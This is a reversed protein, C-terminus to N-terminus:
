RGVLFHCVDGEQLIYDKGETRMRGASKIAAESGHDALDDVSYIEARIFGKVFDSHIEGAALPATSGRAVTWARIEKEGATFFTQLKLLDYNSRILRDLGPEKLGFEEQFLAREDAEMSRLGHELEGCFVLYGMGRNKAALALAVAVEGKGELDDEVVNALVLVDKLTLLFLPRLFTREESTWSETRLGKGEELLAQAREFAALEAQLERDGLRAKKAVRDVNREVTDLDALALELEVTEMDAEPDLPGGRHVRPNEFCRVVHLLADCEKLAGLFRNGLGKGSASGKTLGAIDVVKVSAPIVKLTEIHESLVGLRPDPVEVVASEAELTSFGHESIEAGAATM